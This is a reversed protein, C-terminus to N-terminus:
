AKVFISLHTEHKIKPVQAAFSLRSFFILRSFAYIEPNDLIYNVKM